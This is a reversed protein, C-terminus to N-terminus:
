KKSHPRLASRAKIGMLVLGLASWGLLVYVANMINASTPFYTAERLLTAGAGTTLWQGLMGWPEATFMWPVAIGSLPNAVLFMFAAGLAYGPLGLVSYLGAILVSTAFVALGISGAIAMYDNPMVNMWTYLMLYMATGVFVSYLGLFLVRQMRSSMLAVSLFSGIISGFILPLALAGIDFKTNYAPVVDTVAVVPLQKGKEASTALQVRLGGALSGVLANVAQGNASATLVEPKAPDFVIAGYVERSEVQEIAKDRNEVLSVDLAGDSQKELNTKIASTAKSDGAVAVPVGKPEATILPWMMALAMLSVILAGGVALKLPEMWMPVKQKKKAM